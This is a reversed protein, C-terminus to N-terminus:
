CLAERELDINWLDYNVKIEEISKSRLKKIIAKRYWIPSKKEKMKQNISDLMQEKDM